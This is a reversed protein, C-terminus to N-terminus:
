KWRLRCCGGPGLCDVAGSTLVQSQGHPPGSFSLFAQLWSEGTGEKGVGTKREREKGSEKDGSRRARDGSMRAELCGSVWSGPSGPGDRAAVGWGVWWSLGASANSGM